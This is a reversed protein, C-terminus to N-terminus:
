RRRRLGIFGTVVGLGLLSLAGPEPAVQVLQLGNFDGEGSNGSTPNTVAGWTGTINGNADPMVGVFEVYDAGLIFSQAPQGNALNLTSSIGGLAAGSSVSFAAGRDNNHNAGYLFLDYSGAPVNHLGFAGLPNASTGIGPSSGNVVAAESFLFAPTGQKTPADAAGNDFGYTLSLTVPSIAGHSTANAANAPSTPSFLTSGSANGANWQAYPNGPNGPQQPNDPLGAGYFDTSGPGGYGGFGNWINNGPDSYAGQGYFLLNYGGSTAYRSGFQYGSQADHFNVVLQAQGAPAALAVLIGGIRVIRKM